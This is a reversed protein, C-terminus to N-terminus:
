GTDRVREFRLRGDASDGHIFLRYAHVLSHCKRCLAVLNQSTDQGGASRLKKHHVDVEGGTGCARCTFGDRLLVQKRVALWARQKARRQTWRDVVKPMPKM